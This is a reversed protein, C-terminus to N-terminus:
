APLFGHERLIDQAPRSAVFAVFAEAATANTTAEVVALPYAAPVNQEDPIAVGDVDPAAVVDTVYVIGADAEGSRVRGLVGAVSTEDSAPQVHVGAKTLAQRAYNGCPVNVACLSVATGSAALDALDAFGKPNGKAVVIQLLNRTFVRAPAALLGAADLKAMNAEDATAVVDAPAGQTIQGVLAASGAFNFTVAADPHADEFAAGIETFAATLSQAAYVTVTGAIAPTTAAEGEDDSGCSVALLAGAFLLALPWRPRV